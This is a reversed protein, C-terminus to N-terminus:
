GVHEKNTEQHRRFYMITDDVIQDLGLRMKFGVLRKLKETNPIRRKIDEFGKPFAVEYPVINIVSESNTKVIILKALDLISTEAFGGVNVVHGFAEPEEVLKRLAVAVERVHAFTRTQTGDGYVTIPRNELAQMVFRPIVMGYRGSQRPGVTNFLRAIVVPLGTADHYSLAIFEDVAKAAAYSWRATTSPGYVCDDSEKLPVSTQKGYVESTSAILVKKGTRSCANLVTETGYVNIRISDLPNDIINRVGVAAALHIVCDSDSVLRSVLDSDLVTGNTISFREHGRSIINRINSASGTSFDDIIDVDDGNELYLEALHSGVFGAGGTILVKM